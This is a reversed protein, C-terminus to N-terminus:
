LPVCFAAEGGIAQGTGKKGQLSANQLIDKSFLHELCILPHSNRLTQEPSESFIAQHLTLADLVKSSLFCFWLSNQSAKLVLSTDLFIVSCIFDIQHPACYSCHLSHCGPICIAMRFPMLEVEIWWDETLIHAWPQWTKWFNLLLWFDPNQPSMEGIKLIRVFIMGFSCFM